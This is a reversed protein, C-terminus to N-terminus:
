MANLTKVIRGRVHELRAANPKARARESVVLWDAGVYQKGRGQSEEVALSSLPQPYRAGNFTPNFKPYTALLLVVVEGEGNNGKGEGEGVGGMSLLLEVSMSCLPVCQYEVGFEM